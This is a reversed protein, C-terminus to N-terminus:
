FRGGRFKMLRHYNERRKTDAKKWFVAELDDVFGIDDSMMKNEEGTIPNNWQLRISIIEGEKIDRKARGVIANEM